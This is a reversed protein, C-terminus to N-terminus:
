VRSCTQEHVTKSIASVLRRYSIRDISEGGIWFGDRWSSYYWRALIALHEARDSAPVRVPALSAAAERLRRDMPASENPLVSFALLPQWTGSILFWLSVAGPIISPQVAVGCLREVDCALHERLRLLEEIQEVRRHQRAAAEFDLEASLRDRASRPTVSRKADTLASSTPSVPPKVRM